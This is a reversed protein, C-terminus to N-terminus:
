EVVRGFLGGDAAPEQLAPTPSTSLNIPSAAGRYVYVAGQQNFDLPEGVAIDALGDGNTDRDRRTLPGRVSLKRERHRPEHAHHPNRLIDRRRKWRSLCVRYGMSSGTTSTGVILDAFGDGNVDGAGSVVTGFGSGSGGITAITTPGNSPGSSGGFYVYPVGQSGVIFDSYGDGNVDDAGAPSFGFSGSAIPGAFVIPTISLGKSGGLFLYVAGSGASEQEASVLVDGYGDGNVDGASAVPVGFGSNAAGSLTATPSTATGFPAGLYVYAAGNGTSEESGIVIDAYGDGNVDGASAVSGGFGAAASQTISTVPTSSLGIPRWPLCVCRHEGFDGIVVDAFGTAM